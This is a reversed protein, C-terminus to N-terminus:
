DGCNEAAMLCCVHIRLLRDRQGINIGNTKVVTAVVDFHVFSQALGVYFTFGVLQLSSLM